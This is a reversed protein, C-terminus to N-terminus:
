MGCSAIKQSLLLLIWKCRNNCRQKVVCMINLPNVYNNLPVSIIKREALYWVTERLAFLMILIAFSLWHYAHLCFNLIVWKGWPSFFWPSAPPHGCRTPFRTLCSVLPDKRGRMEGVVFASSALVHAHETGSPVPWVSRARLPTGAEQIGTFVGLLKFLKLNKWSRWSPLM